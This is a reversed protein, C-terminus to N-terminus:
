SKWSCSCLKEMLGPKLFMVKGYAPAGESVSSCLKEMLVPKHFMVKGYAPAGIEMLVFM